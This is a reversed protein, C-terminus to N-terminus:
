DLGHGVGMPKLALRMVLADERQGHGAPYYARRRGVAEFGAARYLHQARQNSDRVELWLAQAARAACAQLLDALMQRAHGQGQHEPAVTINLLHMEDVGPMALCYGLLTSDAAGRHRGAPAALLVRALHGAALSDTFNGRSWPFGYAQQEIAHVADLDTVTMDRLATAAAPGVSAALRM